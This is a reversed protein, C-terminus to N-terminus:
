PPDLHGRIANPDLTIPVGTASVITKKHSGVIIKKTKFQVDIVANHNMKVAFFSMKMLAEEEDECDEVLLPDEIRKLGRTLKTQEKSYIIVERAQEMTANYDDLPTRVNEDFCQVCYTPHTLEKPVVKLFSFNETLFEGCSKCIPGQCLGCQYNAKPKHCTKCIQPTNM